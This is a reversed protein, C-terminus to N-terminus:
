EVDSLIVVDSMAALHHIGSVERATPHANHGLKLPCAGVRAVMSSMMPCEAMPVATVRPSIKVM